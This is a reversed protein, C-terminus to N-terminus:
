GSRDPVAARLPAPPLRPLTENCTPNRCQAFCPTFFASLWKRLSLEPTPFYLSKLKKRLSVAANHWFHTTECAIHSSYSFNCYEALVCTLLCATSPSYTSWFLLSPLFPLSLM